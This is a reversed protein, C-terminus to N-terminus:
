SSRTVRLNTGTTGDRVAQFPLTLTLPGDGTVPVGGGGTYVIRPILFTHTGGGSDTLTFSLSSATEGLFKAVLSGDEFYATLEGTVNSKGDVFSQVLPSFVVQQKSMGNDLNLKLGSVIGIASGGESITGTFSDFAPNSPAATMTADISTGSAVMERFMAGFTAKIAGELPVELAFSNLVVGRLAHFQAIDNYRAEFTFSRAQTGVNLVNTTWTGLLVAELMADFAGRRYDCEFNLTGSEAGLRFDAIQRDTRRDRVQFGAKQYSPTFTAVPLEILAPTGPTTGFVSELVYGLDARSGRAM